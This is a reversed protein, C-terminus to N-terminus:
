KTNQETPLIIESPHPEWTERSMLGDYLKRAEDGMSLSAANLYVEAQRPNPPLGEGGKTTIYAMFVYAAPCNGGITTDSLYELAKDPDPKAGIGAYALHSLLIRAYPYGTSASRYLLQIGKEIDQEVGDGRALMYGASAACHPSRAVEYARLFLRYARSHDQPLGYRGEYYALALLTLASENNALAAIRLLRIATKADTKMGAEALNAPPSLKYYAMTFIASAHHKSFAIALHALSDAPKEQAILRAITFHAASNGKAAADDLWQAQTKSDPAFSSLYYIVNHNGREIESRVEPLDKSQFSQLRGTSLLWTFRAEFNGTACAEILQKNAAEENKPTGIGAKLCRSYCMMAPIYKKGAARKLNAFAQKAGESMVLEPAVLRLWPEANYVLAVPNGEQAAKDIWEWVAFENEGNADLAKELAPVLDLDNNKALEDLTQVFSKYPDEAPPAVNKGKGKATPTPTAAKKQTKRLNGTGTRTKSATKNKNGAAAEATPASLLGAMLALLFLFPFKM